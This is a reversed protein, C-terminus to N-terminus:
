EELRRILGHYIPLEDWIYSHMNKDTYLSMFYLRGTKKIIKIRNRPREKNEYYKKDRCLGSRACWIIDKITGHRNERKSVSDNM